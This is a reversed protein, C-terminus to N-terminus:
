PRIYGWKKLDHMLEAVFVRGAPWGLYTKGRYLLGHRLAGDLARRAVDPRGLLYEDAVYSAVYSRLDTDKEPKTRKLFYRGLSAAHKAIETPYSRTLDSLKGARFSWIQIPAASFVYATFTYVFREDSAVFEPRGDHDLDALRRGYNGWYHFTSRYRHAAGDWRLILSVACCHAGGTFLDVLVEPEGGDLDRVVIDVPRSAACDRCVLREIPVDLVRRGARVVSIRLKEYLFDRETYTITANVTGRRASLSQPVDRSLDLTYCNLRAPRGHNTIRLTWRGRADEGYLSSLRGEPRYPTEVFPSSADAIPNTAEDSDLVTLVGGCGAEESGFDAGTGRRVVLPVETGQPSVLSIALASTDPTTIRFSVRVFSVPGQDPVTLSRDLSAGIPADITGTSYTKTAAHAPGATAALLVAASVLLRRM